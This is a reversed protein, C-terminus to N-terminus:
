GPQELHGPDNAAAKAWGDDSPLDVVAFPVRRHHSLANDIHIFVVDIGEEDKGVSNKVM